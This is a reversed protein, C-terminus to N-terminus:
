LDIFRSANNQLRCYCDGLLGEKHRDVILHRMSNDSNMVGVGIIVDVNAQKDVNSWHVDGSGINEKYEERFTKSNWYKGRNKAQTTGIVPAYVQAVESRVRKYIDNYPRPSSDLTKGTLLNDIQDIIILTPSFKDCYKKIFDLSKGFINIVEIRTGGEENYLKQCQENNKFVFEKFLNFEINKKNIICASLRQRVMKCSQENTFFLVKTKDGKVAAVAQSVCFATKGGDTGAVVLHFFDKKFGRIISNLKKISTHLYDDDGFAYVEKLDHSYLDSDLNLTKNFRKLYEELKHSDFQKLCYPSSAIIEDVGLTKLITMGMKRYRLGTVVDEIAEAKVKMLETFIHKYKKQEENTWPKYSNLFWASFQSWDLMEIDLLNFYTDYSTIIEQGETSLSYKDVLNIYQKYIKKNRVLSLLALDLEASIM